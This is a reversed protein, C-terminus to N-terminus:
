EEWLSVAAERTKETATVPPDNAVYVEKTEAKETSSTDQNNISPSDVRRTEKEIGYREKEEESMERPDGMGKSEEEPSISNQSVDGDVLELDWGTAATGERTSIEIPPVANSLGVEANVYFATHCAGQSIGSGSYAGELIFETSDNTTANDVVIQGLASSITSGALIPGVLAPGAYSGLISLIGTGISVTESVFEPKDPEPTIGQQNRSGEVLGAQSNNSRVIIGQRSLGSTLEETDSDIISGETAVSFSHHWYDSGIVNGQEERPIFVSDYLYLM